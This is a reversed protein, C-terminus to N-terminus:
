YYNATLYLNEGVVSFLEESLYSTLVQRGPDVVFPRDHSIPELGLGVEVVSLSLEPPEEM